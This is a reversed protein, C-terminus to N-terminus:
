GDCHPGAERQQTSVALSTSRKMILDFKQDSSQLTATLDLELEEVTPPQIVIFLRVVLIDIRDTGQDRM